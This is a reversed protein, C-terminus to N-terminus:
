FVIEVKANATISTGKLCLQVEASDAIAIYTRGKLLCKWKQILSLSHEKLTSNSKKRDAIFAGKVFLEVKAYNQM